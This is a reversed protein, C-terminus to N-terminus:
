MRMRQRRSRRRWGRRWGRTVKRLRAIDERNFEAERLGEPAGSVEEEELEELAEVTAETNMTESM